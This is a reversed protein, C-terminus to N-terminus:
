SKNRESLMADALVYAWEAARSAHTDGCEVQTFVHALAAAAFYDRLSMGPSYMRSDPGAMPHDSPMDIPFAPGGNDNSM